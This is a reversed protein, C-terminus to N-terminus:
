AATDEDHYTVTRGDRWVLAATGTFRGIEMRAVPRAGDGDRCEGTM